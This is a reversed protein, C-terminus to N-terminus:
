ALSRRRTGAVAAIALNLGDAVVVGADTLLGAAREWQPVMSGTHSATAAKGADTRGSLLAVVPVARIADELTDLLADGEDLREIYLKEDPSMLLPRDMAITRVIRDTFFIETDAIHGVCEVTSWKGSVPRALVEEPTM